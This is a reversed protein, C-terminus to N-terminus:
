ADPAPARALVLTSLDPRRGKSTGPAEVVFVSLRFPRPSGPEAPPGARRVEAIEIHWAIGDSVGQERGPAVIARARVSEVLDQALALRRFHADVVEVVDMTGAFARLMAISVLALIAFAVLAEVLVFGAEGDEVHPDAAPTM